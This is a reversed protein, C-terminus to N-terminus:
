YDIYSHEQRIMITKEAAPLIESAAGPDRTSKSTTGFSRQCIKLKWNFSFQIKLEIRQCLIVVLAHVLQRDM